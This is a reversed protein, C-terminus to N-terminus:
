AHQGLVPPHHGVVLEGDLLRQLAQGALGDGDGLDATHGALPEGDDAVRRGISGALADEDKQAAGVVARVQRGRHREAFELERAVPLPRADQESAGRFEAGLRCPEFDVELVEDAAVLCRRILGLQLRNRVRELRLGIERPVVVGDRRRVDGVDGLVDAPWAALRTEGNVEFRVAAIRATGEGGARRRPGVLRVREDIEGQVAPRRGRSRAEVVLVADVQVEGARQRAAGSLAVARDSAGDLLSGGLVGEVALLVEGDAVGVDEDLRGAHTGQGLHDGVLHAVGDAKAM